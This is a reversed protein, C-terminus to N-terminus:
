RRMNNIWEITEEKTLEGNLYKQKQTKYSKKWKDYCEKYKPIDPNRKVRMSLTSGTNSFLATVEDEKVKNKYKKDAGVDKCTRSSDSTILNDCYKENSKSIPIFFKGCNACTNIHLDTTDLLNVFSVFLINELKSCNYSYPTFAFDKSAVAYILQKQTYKSLNIDTDFFSEYDISIGNSYKRFKNTRTFLIKGDCGHFSLYYKQKANLKNIETDGSDNFCFNITDKFEQQLKSLQNKISNFFDDFLRDFDSVTYTTYTNFINLKDLYLLNDLGYKFAFSKLDYSNDLNINLFDILFTGIPQIKIDLDNLSNVFIAEYAPTYDKIENPAIIHYPNEDDQIQFEELLEPENSDLIYNKCLRRYKMIEKENKLDFYIFFNSKM